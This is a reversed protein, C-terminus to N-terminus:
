TCETMYAAGWEPRLEMDEEIRQHQFFLKEDGFKSPFCGDVVVLRALETGEIDDPNAHAVFSYPATGAPINDVFQQLFELNTPSEEERFNVEGTPKLSVKFPFIPEEENGEQDYRALDSLGVKTSCTGVQLFKQLLMKEAAAKPGLIHNYMNGSVEPDFINYSKGPTLSHLTVFNGSTIGSRLFKIGAGPAVGAENAIDIAPGIRIIGTQKGNKFIGTYPSDTIDLTFKCVAGIGHIDKERGVPMNDWEDDFTTVVSEAFCDAVSPFTGQSPEEMVQAMIEDTKEEWTKAVYDPKSTDLYLCYDWYGSVGSEGCKDETNCWDKTESAFPPLCTAGCGCTNQCVCNHPTTTEPDAVDKLETAIIDMNEGSPEGRHQQGFPCAAKASLFMACFVLAYGLVEM